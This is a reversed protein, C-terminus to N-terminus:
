PPPILGLLSDEDPKPAVIPRVGAGALADGVQQSLVYSKIEGLQRTLGAAVALDGFAEATRRSYLLVGDISGSALANRVAPDFDSAAEARYAEFVHVEYGLGTLAESLAGARDRAAPYVLPGVTPPLQMAVINALSVVDEAGRRVDRFGLKEAVQATASGGAFLPVNRWGSATPWNIIARLANQSTILVAAPVPMDMPPPSLVITLMPQVMVEHGAERLRAATRVADPEPRTVLLRM